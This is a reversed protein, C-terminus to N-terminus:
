KPVIASAGCSGPWAGRLDPSVLSKADLKPESFGEMTETQSSGPGPPRTGAARVEAELAAGGRLDSAETRARSGRAAPADRGPRRQSVNTHLLAEHALVRRPSTCTTSVHSITQSLLPGIGAPRRRGVVSSAHVRGTRAGCRGRGSRLNLLRELLAGWRRQFGTRFPSYLKPNVKFSEKFRQQM